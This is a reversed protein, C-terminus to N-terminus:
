LGPNGGPGSDIDVPYALVLPSALASKNLYDRIGMVLARFTREEVASIANYFLVKPRSHVTTRILLNVDTCSSELCPQPQWGCQRAPETAMTICDFLVETTAGVHNAMSSPCFGPKRPRSKADNKLRIPAKGQQITFDFCKVIVRAGPRSCAVHGIKM